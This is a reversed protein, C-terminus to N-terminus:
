LDAGFDSNTSDVRNSDSGSEPTKVQLELKNSDTESAERVNMNM